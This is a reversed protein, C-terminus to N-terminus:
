GYMEGETGRPEPKAPPRPHLRHVGGSVRRGPLLVAWIPSLHPFPYVPVVVTDINYSPDYGVLNISEQHTQFSGFTARLGM